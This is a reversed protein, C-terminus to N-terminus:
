RGTGKLWRKVRMSTASDSLSAKAGLNLSERFGSSEAAVTFLAARGDLEPKESLQQLVKLVAQAIFQAGVEMTPTSVQLAKAHDAFGKWIGADQSALQWGAKVLKPIFHAPFSTGSELPWKQEDVYDLFHRLDAERMGRFRHTRLMFRQVLDQRHSERLWNALIDLEDQGVLLIFPRLGLQILSESLLKLLDLEEVSLNQAEDIAFIVTSTGLKDCENRAHNLLAKFPWQVHDDGMASEDGRLRRWFKASANRERHTVMMSRMVVATRDTTMKRELCDLMSTKGFRTPATCAMGLEATQLVSELAAGFEQVPLSPVQYGRPRLMPHIDTVDL